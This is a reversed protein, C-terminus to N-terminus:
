CGLTAVVFDGLPPCRGGPAAAELGGPPPRMGGPAL